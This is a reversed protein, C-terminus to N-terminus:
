GGGQHCEPAGDPGDVGFRAPLEVGAARLSATRAASEKGIDKISGQAGSPASSDPRAPREAKSMKNWLVLRIRTTAPAAM